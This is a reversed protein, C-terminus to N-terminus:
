SGNLPRGHREAYLAIDEADLGNKRMSQVQETDLLFCQAGNIIVGETTVVTVPSPAPKREEAIGKFEPRFWMGCNRCDYFGEDDPGVVDTSGCGIITHPEGDDTYLSAPCTITVASDGFDRGRATRPKPTTESRYVAGAYDEAMGQQAETREDPDLAYAAKLQEDAILEEDTTM